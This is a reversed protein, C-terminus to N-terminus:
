PKESLKSKLLKVGRSLQQWAAQVSVGLAAAIQSGSMDERFKLLLIDRAAGPLAEIARTLREVSENRLAADEPTNPDPIAVEPMPAERRRTQRRLADRATNGAITTVWADYDKVHGNMNKGIKLLAEQSV